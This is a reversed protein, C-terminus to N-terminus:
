HFRLGDCCGAEGRDGVVVVVVVDVVVVAEEDTVGGGGQCLCSESGDLRSVVDSLLLCFLCCESM